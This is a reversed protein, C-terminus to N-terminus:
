QVFLVEKQVHQKDKILDILYVGRALSRTSISVAGSLDKKQRQSEIVVRGFLDVLCVKYDPGPLMINVRDPSKTIFSKSAVGPKGAPQVSVVGPGYIETEYISLNGSAASVTVSSGSVPTFDADAYGLGGASTGSWVQASGVSVKWSNANKFTTFKIHVSSVQQASALNYTISSGSWSTTENDDYTNGGSTSTVALTTPAPSDLQYPPLPQLNLPQGDFPMSSTLGGTNDVAASTFTVTAGTLGSSSAAVTITGPTSSARVSVRSQGCEV